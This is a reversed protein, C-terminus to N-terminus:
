SARTPVAGALASPRTARDALTAFVLTLATWLVVHGGLSALRFDYLVAAPFDRPTESIAPLLFAALGVLVVYGGAASLVANWWGLRDALRRCLATAAVAGAVSIVIMVVFLGTREGITDDLSSAPPNAPYKLFPVLVASTFGVLAVVVATGRVGLRGLRGQATAHVLALIGGVAVGYILYGVALGISSQVGRSVLAPGGTEGSAASVMDEYAIGGELAPEGFVRAFVFAVLGAVLGAIMGRVLLSRVM